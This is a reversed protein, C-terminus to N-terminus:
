GFLKPQVYGSEKSTPTASSSSSPNASQSSPNSATKAKSKGSRAAPKPDVQTSPLPQILVVDPETKDENEILDVVDPFQVQGQATVWYGLLSSWVTQAQCYAKLQTIGSEFCQALQTNQCQNWLSSQLFQALWVQTFRELSSLPKAVQLYTSRSGSVSQLLERVETPILALHQQIEKFAGPCGQLLSLYSAADLGYASQLV